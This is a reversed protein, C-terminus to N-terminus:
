DVISSKISADNSMKASAVDRLSRPWVVDMIRENKILLIGRRRDVKDAVRNGGRVDSYQIVSARFRTSVLAKGVNDFINSSDLLM